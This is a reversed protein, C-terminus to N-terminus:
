GQATRLMNNEKELFEVRVAMEALSKTLLTIKDNLSKIEKERRDHAASLKERLEGVQSRLDDRYLTSEKQEEQLLEAKMEAKHKWFDWARQSSLAAIVSALVPFITDTSDM